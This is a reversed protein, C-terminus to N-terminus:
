QLLRAKKFLLTIEKEIEEFKLDVSKPFATIVIDLNEKIHPLLTKLVERMRRKLKNRKISKVSVNKGVVFGIRPNKFRSKQFRLSFLFNKIGKGKYVRQFDREKILRNKLPLM